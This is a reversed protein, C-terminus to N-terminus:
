GTEQDPLRDRRTQLSESRGGAMEQGVNLNSQLSPIIAMKAIVSLLLSSCLSALSPVKEQQSSAQQDIVNRALRELPSPAAPPYNETTM